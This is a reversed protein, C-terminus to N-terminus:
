ASRRGPPVAVSGHEIADCVDPCESLEAVEAMETPLTRLDVHGIRLANKGSRKVEYMLADALKLAEDLSGSAPPEFILAGMSCAVGLGLDDLIRSLRVHVMTAVHDGQDHNRVTLLGVFEDGGIRAFLDGDRVVAQAETAFTRLVDDGLSHGYRDNVQKFGDLDLYCLLLVRGEGLARGVVSRQRGLFASKNLVGTLSDISARWRELALATRLGSAVSVVLSASLWRVSMNWVVTGFPLAHEGPMTSRIHTIVTAGVICVAAVALGQREGLTWAAFACILFYFLLLSLHVATIAEVVLACVVALATVAWARARSWGSTASLVRALVQSTPSM